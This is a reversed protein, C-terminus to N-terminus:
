GEDDEGGNVVVPMGLAFRARELLEVDAVLPGGDHGAVKTTAGFERPMRRELLWSRARWDAVQAIFEVHARSWGERADDILQRFAPDAKMWSYVEARPFGEAAISADLTAGAALGRLVGDLQEETMGPPRPRPRAPALARGTDTAPAEGEDGERMPLLGAPLKGTAAFVERM